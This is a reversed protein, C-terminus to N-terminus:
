SRAPHLLTCTSGTAAAGCPHLGPDPPPRDDVGGDRVPQRRQGARRRADPHDAVGETAPHAVERPAVPEGGVVHARISSTVASPSARRTVASLTGLQEPRHAATLTQKPM